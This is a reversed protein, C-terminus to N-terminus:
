AETSAAAPRPRGADMVPDRLEASM